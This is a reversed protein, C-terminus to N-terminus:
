LGARQAPRQGAAGSLRQEGEKAADRVMRDALRAPQPLRFEPSCALVAKCCDDLGIGWGKSVYLGKVGTRTVLYRGLEQGAEDLFPRYSGRQEAPGTWPGPAAGSELMTKGVGVSAIGEWAGVHCALGFRQPHLRGQGDLMLLDPRVRLMGLARRVLPAERASFFGPVYEAAGGACCVASDAVKGTSIDWVAAACYSAQAQEDYACDIGAVLLGPKLWDLPTEPEQMLLRAMSAQMRRGEEIAEANGEAIGLAEFGELRARWKDRDNQM